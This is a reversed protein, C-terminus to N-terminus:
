FGFFTKWRKAKAPKTEVGTFLKIEGSTEDFTYTGEYAQLIISSPTIRSAKSYQDKDVFYTASEGNNWEVYLFEQKEM